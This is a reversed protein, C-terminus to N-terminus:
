RALLRHIAAFQAAALHPGTEADFEAIHELSWRDLAQLVGLVLAAQLSLPLDDRVEGSARGIMLVDDLWKAARATVESLISGDNLPADTLYLLKGFDVYWAQDGSIALLRTFLAAISDWFDPGALDRPDPIAMDRDFASAVETVVTDFLAEKSSFYHYFSSKSMGCARIIRNLSAKEYGAGAFERAATELLKQRRAPAMEGVTRTEM